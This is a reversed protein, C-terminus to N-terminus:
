RGKNFNATHEAYYIEKKLLVLLEEKEELTMNMVINFIDDKTNVVM